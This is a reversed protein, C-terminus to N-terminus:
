ESYKCFRKNIYLLMAVYCVVSLLMPIRIVRISILELHLMNEIIFLATSMSIVFVTITIAAFIKRGLLYLSFQRKKMSYLLIGAVLFSVLLDGIFIIKLNQVDLGQMAYDLAISNSYYSIEGVGAYNLLDVVKRYIEVDNEQVKLIGSVKNANHILQSDKQQKNEPLSIFQGSPMVVSNDLYHQDIFTVTSNPSLFGIVQFTHPVFLYEAQFQDGVRFHEQFQSGLIVSIPKGAEFIYDLQNFLRGSQVQLSMDDQVNLGIQVSQIQNEGYFLPQQYFEYYTTSPLENLEKNLNLFNAQLSSSDEGQFLESEHQISIYTEESLRYPYSDMKIIANVYSYGYLMVFISLSFLLLVISFVATRKKM